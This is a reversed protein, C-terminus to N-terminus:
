RNIERVRFFMQKKRSLSVFRKDFNSNIIDNRKYTYFIYLNILLFVTHEIYLREGM